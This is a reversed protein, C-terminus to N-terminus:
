VLIGGMKWVYASDLNKVGKDIISAMILPVILEFIAEILKFMPGLIVEKKYCRLYKKYLKFM